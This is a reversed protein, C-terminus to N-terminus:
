SGDPSRAFHLLVALGLTLLGVVGIVTGSVQLIEQGMAARTEILPFGQAKTLLGPDHWFERRAPDLFHNLFQLVAGYFQEAVFWGCLYVALGIGISALGLQGLSGQLVQPLTRGIM